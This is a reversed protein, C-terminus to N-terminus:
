HELVPGLGAPLLHFRQAVHNRVIKSLLRFLLVPTISGINGEIDHGSTFMAIAALWMAAGVALDIQM